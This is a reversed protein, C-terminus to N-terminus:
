RKILKQVEVGDKTQIKVWYLGHKLHAININNESSIGTERGLGDIISASLIPSKSNITFTEEVPNPYLSFTPSSVISRKTTFEGGTSTHLITGDEGVLWGNQSSSFSSGLLKKTTLSNLNLWSQGGNTTKIIMGNQGIAWGTQDTIFSVSNFFNSTGTNQSIWTNGGDTTKAINGNNGVIWGTQNDVFFLSNLNVFVGSTQPLWLVGGNTTKLVTGAEGVIWGTEQSTFFVQNLFTTSPLNTAMQWWNNGGDLTRLVISGNSGVAFGTQSNVFFISFLWFSSGTPQITWDSGGNSTKHIGNAGAVWGL